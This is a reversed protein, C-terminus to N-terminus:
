QANNHSSEGWCKRVPQQAGEACQNRLELAGHDLFSITPARQFPVRTTHLKKGMGQRMTNVGPLLLLSTCSASKSSSRVGLRLAASSTTFCHKGSAGTPMDRSRRQSSFPPNRASEHDLKTWSSQGAVAKICRDRACGDCVHVPRLACSMAFNYSYAPTLFFGNAAWPPAKPSEIAETTTNALFSRNEDKMSAQM